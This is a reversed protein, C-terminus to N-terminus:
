GALYARQLEFVADYHGGHPRVEAVNVALGHLIEGGAGAASGSHYQDVHGNRVVKLVGASGQDDVLVVELIELLYAVARVLDPALDADLEHRAAPAHGPGALEVGHRYAGRGAAPEVRGVDLTVLQANLLYLAEDRLGLAGGPEAGCGPRVGKLHVGVAAVQVVLEQGGGPVGAGVFVAAVDLAAGGEQELLDRGHAPARALVRGDEDLEAGVVAHGVGAEALQGLAQLQGFVELLVAHVGEVHVRATILLPLEGHGRHEILLGNQLQVAGLGHALGNGDRHQRM